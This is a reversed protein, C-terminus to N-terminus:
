SRAIALVAKIIKPDSHGHVPSNFLNKSREGSKRTASLHVSSFGAQKFLVINKQDVGGGPMIEIDKGFEAHLHKLLSLGEAAIAKQGSSLLRDVGLTVLSKVAQTPDKCIDIARHFTFTLPRAEELMIALREEDPQDNRDLIGCVVGDFGASRCYAIDDLITKFETENYCFDGARPRILVHVPIRVERKVLELVEHEPTLGGVSLDKCLEIRQAGATSAIVASELGNACIEVKM